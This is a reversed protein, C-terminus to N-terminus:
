VSPNSFSCAKTIHTHLVYSVETRIEQAEQTEQMSCGTSSNCHDCGPHHSMSDGSWSNCWHCGCWQFSSPSPFSFSKTFPIPFSPSPPPKTFPITFSFLFSFSQLKRLFYEWWPGCSSPSASNLSLCLPIYHYIIAICHFRELVSWSYISYNHIAPPMLKSVHNHNGTLAPECCLNIWHHHAYMVITSYPLTRRIPVYIITLILSAQCTVNRHCKTDGISTGLTLSLLSKLCWLPQSWQAKFGDSRCHIQCFHSLIFCSFSM